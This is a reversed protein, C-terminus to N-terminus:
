FTPPSLIEGHCRCDDVFRRASQKQNSLKEQRQREFTLTSGPPRMQILVGKLELKKERVLKQKISAQELDIFLSVTQYVHQYHEQIYLPFM